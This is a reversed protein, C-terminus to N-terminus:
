EEAAYDQMTEETDSGGDILHQKMLLSKEYIFNREDPSMVRWIDRTGANILWILSMKGLVFQYCEYDFISRAEDEDYYEYYVEETENYKLYSFLDEKLDAPIRRVQPLKNCIYDSLENPLNKWIPDMSDDYFTETYDSLSVKKIRDM